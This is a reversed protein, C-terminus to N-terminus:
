INAVQEAIEVMSIGYHSEDYICTGNKLVIVQPSEHHVEFKVAIANSISRLKLLDLYYFDANSPAEARELRNLAMSSISCTTSHKFIVQPTVFSKAAIENLQEETTLAIWNM